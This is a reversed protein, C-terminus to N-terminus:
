VKRVSGRISELRLEPLEPLVDLAYEPLYGEVVVSASINGYLAAELPDFTRRYGALFGGCFADGAGTPNVVRSPYSPIEWRTDSGADYLMQGREGRKIVVMECGYAALGEAMEWLDDSRGQYLCRIEEEAPLFATLGTLLSPVDGWYTPNMYGPSPDLTVTTFESKRLLAPFLSHTLYDIPCVHIASADEFQPPIDEERLSVHQLKTRSDVAADHHNYGLLAKPFKLGVHAFHSLPDERSFQRIDSFAMFSRVDVPQPLVKVGRMDMGLSSFMDLWKQPYDEGVRALLGPPPDPEWIIHGVAAYLVNGGPVDIRTDGSPFIFFDRSLQGAFLSKPTTYEV